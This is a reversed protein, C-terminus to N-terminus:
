ARRPDIRWARLTPAATAAHGLSPAHIYGHSVEQAAPAPRVDELVGFVNPHQFVVAAVDVPRDLLAMEGPYFAEVGAYVRLNEATRGLGAATM